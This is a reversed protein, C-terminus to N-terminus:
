EASHCGGSYGIIIVEDIEGRQVAELKEVVIQHHRALEFGPWNAVGYVALDEAALALLEQTKIPWITRTGAPKVEIGLHNVFGSRQEGRRAPSITLNLPAL